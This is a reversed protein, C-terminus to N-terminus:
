WSDAFLHLYDFIKNQHRYSRIFMYIAISLVLLLYHNPSYRVKMHAILFSGTLYIDKINNILSLHGHGFNDRAPGLENTAAASPARGQRLLALALSFLESSVRQFM